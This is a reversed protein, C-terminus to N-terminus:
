SAVNQLKRQLSYNHPFYSICGHLAFPIFVDEDPYVMTLMHGVLLDQHTRSHDDQSNMDVVTEVAKHTGVLEDAVGEWTHQVL